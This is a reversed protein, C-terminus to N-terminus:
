VIPFLINALYIVGDDDPCQPITTMIVVQTAFDPHNDNEVAILAHQSRDSRQGFYLRGAGALRGNSVALHLPPGAGSRHGAPSSPWTSM